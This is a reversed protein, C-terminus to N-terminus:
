DGRAGAGQDSGCRRRLGNRSWILSAIAGGPGLNVSNPENEDADQRPNDQKNLRQIIEQYLSVDAASIKPSERSFVLGM